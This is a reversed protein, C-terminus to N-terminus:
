CRVKMRERCKECRLYLDLINYQTNVKATLEERPLYSIDPQEYPSNHKYGRSIMEIVLEDHRLKMNSPEILVIPKIRGSVSHKKIFNHKHKHIESHEGLLHNKCLFKPPLM